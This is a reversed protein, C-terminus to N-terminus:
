AKKKRSLLRIRKKPNKGQRKAKNNQLKKTVKDLYLFYAPNVKKKKVIIEYHLHIGTATGTKGEIGIRQGRKIQEGRKVLFSKLHAYKTFIGRGHQIIVTNGYGRLRQIQVVRGEAAAYVLLEKNNALDIGSHFIKRKKIPHYRFGYNSTIRPQYLPLLLPINKIHNDLRILYNLAQNKPANKIENITEKEKLFFLNYKTDLIQLATTLKQIKQYAITQYNENAFIDIALNRKNQPTIVYQPNFIFFNSNPYIGYLYYIENVNTADTYLEQAQQLYPIDFIQQEQSDKDFIDEAYTKASILLLITIIFSKFILFFNKMYIPSLVIM